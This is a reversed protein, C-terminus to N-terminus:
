HWAINAVLFATAAMTGLTLLLIELRVDLKWRKRTDHFQVYDMCVEMHRKGDITDLGEGTAM